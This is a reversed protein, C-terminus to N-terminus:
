DLISQKKINRSKSNIEDIEIGKEIVKRVFIETAIQINRLQEETPQSIYIKANEYIYIKEM